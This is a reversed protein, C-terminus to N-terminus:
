RRSKSCTRLTAQFPAFGKQLFIKLKGCFIEQLLHLEKSIDWVKGTEALYSTAPKKITGLHKQSTNINLGVGLIIAKHPSLPITECLIGAIKKRSVLIDNPWKILATIERKELLQVLSLAMVQTLFASEEIKEDIFFCFTAYLGEKPPSFWDRTYQGKGGTQKDTTVLTM